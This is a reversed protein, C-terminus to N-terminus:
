REERPEGSAGGHQPSQHEPGRHAGGDSGNAVRLRPRPRPEPPPGAVRPVPEEGGVVRRVFYRPRARVDDYIRGVYEGVLGLGVLQAGILLFLVAFLTFVGDAAWAAGLLLRAVLLAMGLTAGLGALVLGGLSLLRLPFTTMSTLLDLQLRVLQSLHYKSEGQQRRAHRVEIETTRHAFRNALVPIFTSREGCQLVADVVTRSYARLMCGYDHMDVGTSRRVM